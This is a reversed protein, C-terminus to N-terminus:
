PAVAVVIGHVRSTWGNIGGHNNGIQYRTGDVAKVLHLYDRGGVTCLVADGVFAGGEPLPSLTVLNGSNIRGRMSNGRPRIQVTEGRSLAAIANTAWSM